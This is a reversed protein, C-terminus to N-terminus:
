KQGSQPEQSSKRKQEKEAKKLEVQKQHARAEEVKRAYAAVNEERIKAEAAEKARIEKLRAEHKAARDGSGAGVAKHPAEPAKSAQPPQAVSGGDPATKQRESEELKRVEQAQKEAQAQDREAVRAKRKFTHAELEVTRVQALTKRRRDKAEDICSTAFFRSQCAQEEAVYRAEIEAREKAADGIAADAQDGSRISGSPYRTAVNSPAADQQGACAVPSIMMAGAAHLVCALCLRCVGHRNLSFMIRNM